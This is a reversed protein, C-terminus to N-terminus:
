DFEAQLLDTFVGIPDHWDGHAWDGNVNAVLIHRGDRTGYTYTWSGFLAGGMGWLTVGSPLTVSSVGLGYGTHTIWNKTPGARFMEAQEAPRLLQGGLLAAFFRHLDGLTSIMGGAAGFMSVDLETADHIAAGPSSDFLKTYHRSHPGEIATDSGRPLSTATLDLPEIIHRRLEDGLSGGTAAEILMGALIYNTNSYGWDTGAAFTPPHAVAIDVLVTPSHTECRNLAERDDTYNFLGSTHNLLQRVTIMDGDNGNGRLANPLRRHVADDLSLLGEGALRLLVTAVFTKTISGIRFRHQPLRPRETATDAFGATAFWQREGDRVEVVIGPVGGETVARDLVDHIVNPVTTKTM